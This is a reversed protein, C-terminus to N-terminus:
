QWGLKELLSRALKYADGNSMRLLRFPEEFEDEVKVAIQVMGDDTVKISEIEVINLTSDMTENNDACHFTRNDITMIARKDDPEILLYGWPSEQTGKLWTIKEAKGNITVEATDGVKFTQDM